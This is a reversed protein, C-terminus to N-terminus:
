LLLTDSGQLPVVGQDQAEHVLPRQLVAQM